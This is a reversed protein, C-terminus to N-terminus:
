RGWINIMRPKKKFKKGLVEKLIMEDTINVGHKKSISKLASIYDDGLIPNSDPDENLYYYDSM